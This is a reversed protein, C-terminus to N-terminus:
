GAAPDAVQAVFLVAGSADDRLLLLFPQDLNVDVPARPTPEAATPGVVVTSGAAVTGQEDLRLDAAHEVLGIRLAAARTIGGFDAAPSFADTIGLAELPANLSAQSLLHFKPIRLDVLTPTLSRVISELRSATLTRDLAALSTGSPRIALLSLSSSRYPLDVAQLGGEGTYPYTEQKSMFRASARGGNDLHFTGGRTDVPDFPSAWLAKLYIANALVFRTSADISDPPLVDRIIGSTHRAVWGNIEIRAAEPAGAFDARYLAAGFDDALTSLFPAEIPLTRETWLANAVDLTPADPGGRAAGAIAHRLVRADSQAQEPTAAGLGHAIQDATPGRAGAGAMALAVDVSYPSYVANGAGAGAGAGALRPLLALAFTNEAEAAAQPSPQPTTRGGAAPVLAVTIAGAALAAAIVRVGRLAATM